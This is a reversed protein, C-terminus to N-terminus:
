AGGVMDLPLGAVEGDPDLALAESGDSGIAVAGVRGGTARARDVFRDLLASM